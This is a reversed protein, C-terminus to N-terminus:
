NQKIDTLCKFSCKKLICPTWLTRTCKTHMKMKFHVRVKQVGQLIHYYASLFGGFILKKFLKLQLALM